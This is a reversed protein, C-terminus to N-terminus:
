EFHFIMKSRSLMKKERKKPKLRNSVSETEMVVFLYSEDCLMDNPKENRKVIEHFKCSAKQVNSMFCLSDLLDEM